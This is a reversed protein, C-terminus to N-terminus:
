EVRLHELRQDGIAFTVSDGRDFSSGTNSFLIFYARGADPDLRKLRVRGMQHMDSELVGIGTSEDILLPSNRIVDDNVDGHGAASAGLAQAAREPNTVVYRVDVLGGGATVSVREIRFGWTSEMEAVAQPSPGAPDGGCAGLFVLLLAGMGAAVLHHSRRRNLLPRM